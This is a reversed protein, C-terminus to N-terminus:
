KKQTNISGGLGIGYDLAQIRTDYGLSLDVYYKEELYAVGVTPRFSQSSFKYDAGIAVVAKGPKDDHFVRLGLAWDGGFIYSIGIGFSPDAHATGAGLLTAALASSKLLNKM